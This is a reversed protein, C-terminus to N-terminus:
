GSGSAETKVVGDRHLAEIEEAAYGVSELVKSNHEGLLPCPRVALETTGRFLVGNCFLRMLGMAPHRLEGVMDNALAQTDSFFWDNGKDRVPAWPAKAADLREMWHGLTGAAFTKSLEDSLLRDNDTRDGASSLRDDALLDRRGIAECLPAWLDPSDAALYLWGNKARYLRHLAGLGYQMRDASRRPPKGEFRTFEEAGLLIGSNLLNTAVRQSVGTRERVYLAIITGLAALGGAAFDTIALRGLYVPPNETGGQARGLGMLAQSLPDLGPRHSYPGSQGFATVSAEILNPNTASLTEKDVGMRRIAGPRTNSLVVDASDAIRRVAERGRPTRTNLSVGRKNSNLFYFYDRAIDRSIEGELPELKVVDAGLDALLRGATPGAIVNTVELIRVGSLPRSDPSTPDGGRGPAGADVRDGEVGDTEGEPTTRVRGPTESLAIPLGMQSMTGMRPHELQVVMGNSRVQPNDMAEDTTCAKGYPVDAEEFIREWEEYTKTRVARAVIDYLEKRVEESSLNRGDSFRPEALVDSIGLVEAAKKVFGGHICAIHIWEGDACQHLSYFPAGGSPTTSTRIVYSAPSLRDGVIKSGFLLAGAMMSTEVKLGVGTRERRYLGGATGMAALIGAGVSPLPHIIHVPGSRFAPQDSLTGLRAMVLEDVPPEDRLPGKMGYATISCHVLRSNVASLRDYDVLTQERSSPAFSELLVDSEAILSHLAGEDDLSLAINECGRRWVRYEEEGPDGARLVRAGNDGLLTSAVAGAMGRTLDLVTVGDFASAM